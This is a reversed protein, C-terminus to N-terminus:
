FGRRVQQLTADSAAVHEGLALAEEVELEREELQEMLAAQEVQMRSAAETLSLLM